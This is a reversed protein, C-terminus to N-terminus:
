TLETSAGGTAEPTVPAFTEGQRVWLLAFGGILGRLDSVQGGSRTNKPQNQLGAKRGTPM